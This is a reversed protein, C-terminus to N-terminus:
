KLLPLQTLPDLFPNFLILGLVYKRAHRLVSLLLCVSGPETVWKAHHDGAPTCHLGVAPDSSHGKNKMPIEGKSRTLLLSASPGLASQSNPVSSGCVHFFARPMLLSSSIEGPVTIVDKLVLWPSLQSVM